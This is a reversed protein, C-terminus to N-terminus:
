SGLTKTDAAIRRSVCVRLKARYGPYSDGPAAAPYGHLHAWNNLKGDDRPVKAWDHLVNQEKKQPLPQGVEGVYQSFKTAGFLTEPRLYQRMSKDNSWEQAKRDIVRRIDSETYGENLRARILKLNSEVPRFSKGTKKNLYELVQAAMNNDPPPPPLPSPSPTNSLEAKQKAQEKTKSQEDISTAHETSQKPTSNTDGEWRAQAAKKAKDSRAKAGAAWPNNEVWDHIRLLEGDNEMFKINLLADVFEGPDGEWQAAIAIDEADMGVLAGDSKHQAVHSLLCVFGLVGEAGLRRRLKVTKPHNPFTTSLRFDTNPM